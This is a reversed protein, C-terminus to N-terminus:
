RRNIAEFNRLVGPLPRPDDCREWADDPANQAKAEWWRRVEFIEDTDRWYSLLPDASPSQRGTPLPFKRLAESLDTGQWLIEPTGSDHGIANMTKLVRYIPRKDIVGQALDWIPKTSWPFAKPGRSGESLVCVVEDEALPDKLRYTKGNHVRKPSGTFQPEKEGPEVFQGDNFHFFVERGDELMLFGYRKDNASNFWKVKAFVVTSM